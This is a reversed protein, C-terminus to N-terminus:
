ERRQEQAEKEAHKANVTEVDTFNSRAEQLQYRKSSEPDPRQDVQDQDNNSGEPVFLITAQEVPHLRSGRLRQAPLRSDETQGVRLGYAIVLATSGGVNIRM